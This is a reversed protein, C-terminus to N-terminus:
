VVQLIHDKSGWALERWARPSVICGESALGPHEKSDGHWGFGSRGFMENDKDPTLWLVYPGHTETDVPEQITYMGRPLPGWDGPRLGEVPVWLNTTSDWRCGNHIYQFVPNNKGEGKGAYNGRYEREYRDVVLANVQHYVWM